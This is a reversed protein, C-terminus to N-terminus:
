KKFRLVDRVPYHDSMYKVEMYPGTLVKYHMGLIQPTYYIFDRVGSKGKGFKHLTPTLDTSISSHCGDSYRDKLVVNPNTRDKGFTGAPTHSITGIVISAKGEETADLIKQAPGGDEAKGIVTNFVDFKRGSQKLRFSAKFTKPGISKTKELVLAEKLYFIRNQGEGTTEYGSLKEKLTKGENPCEQIGILLPTEKSIMEAVAEINKESNDMNFSIINMDETSIPNSALAAFLGSIILSKM